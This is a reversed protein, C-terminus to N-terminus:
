LIIKCKASKVTKDEGTLAVVMQKNKRTTKQLRVRITKKCNQLGNM